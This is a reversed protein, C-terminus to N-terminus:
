FRFDGPAVGHRILFAKFAERKDAFEPLHRYENCSDKMDRTSFTNVYAYEVDPRRGAAIDSEIKWALRAFLATAVAFLGLGLVVIAAAVGPSRETGWRARVGGGAGAVLALLGLGAILTAPSRERLVWLAEGWLYYFAVSALAVSVLALARQGPERGVWQDKCWWTLLSFFLLIPLGDGLLSSQRLTLWQGELMQGYSLFREEAAGVLLLASWLSCAVAAAVVPTTLPSSRRRLEAVWLVFAPLVVTSALAMGRMGFTGSGLWWVVWAAQLYLNIAMAAAALVFFARHETHRDRVVVAVLAVIGLAYFPHYSLWGHWPHVLVAALEPDAFDFSRFGADGFQYSSTFPSGTMWRNTFATQVAAVFGPIAALTALGLVRRWSDGRRRARVILVVVTPAAYVVWYAKITILLALSLGAALWSWADAQQEDFALWTLVGACALALSESAHVHSFYGGHTALFFLAAGFLTLTAEKRSAIWLVRLMTAWLILAALWGVLPAGARFALVGGTVLQVAAFVFGTGHSWMMLPVGMPSITYVRAQSLDGSLAAIGWDQYRSFDPGTSAAALLLVVFLAMAAATRATM